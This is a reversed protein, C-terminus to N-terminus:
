QLRSRRAPAAAAAAVQPLASRRRVVLWRKPLATGRRVTGGSRSLRAAGRATEPEGSGRPDPNQPSSVATAKQPYLQSLRAHSVLTPRM